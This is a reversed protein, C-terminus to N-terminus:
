LGVRLHNPDVSADNWANSGGGVSGCNGANWYPNLTGSANKFWVRNGSVTHGACSSSYQNWVYMGVNAATRQPGYIVNDAMVHNTGGAVFMGVQGINVLTNRRAINGSGGDDGLAIGSGSGSRWALCGASGDGGEFHNDEVIVNSTKYLSVVDETDGCRGKNHDILGGQVNNFQVFNGRNIGVREYPGLINKYRADIIRINTSNVAYVGEAVNLFDVARITVNSCNELRIAIVNAGLDRFTKNEIVSPCGTRTPGGNYSLAGSAPRSAFAVTWPDTPAPTSTPAPTATPTPAPTATQIPGPTATPAPTATPTPAPTATPAPSATPTPAPTATPTPAPTATPAPTRTPTPAPTAAPAPTATPTPQPTSTPSPSAAVITVTTAVLEADALLAAVKAPGLPLTGPLAADIRFRGNGRVVVDALTGGAVTLRVSAAKPFGDGTVQITAGARASGPDVVLTPTRGAAGALPLALAPVLLLIPLTALLERLRSRHRPVEATPQNVVWDRRDAVRLNRM